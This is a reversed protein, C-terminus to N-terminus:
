EALLIAKISECDVFEIYKSSPCSNSYRLLKGYENDYVYIYNGVIKELSTPKANDGNWKYGLEELMVLVKRIDTNKCHIILREKM